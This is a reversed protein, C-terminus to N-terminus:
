TCPGKDMGETSSGADTTTEVLRYSQAVDNGARLFAVSEVGSENSNTTRPVNTQSDASGYTSSTWGWQEYNGTVANGEKSLWTGGNDSEGHSTTQPGNS